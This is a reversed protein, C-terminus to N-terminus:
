SSPLLHNVSIDVKHQQNNKWFVRFHTRVVFRSKRVSIDLLKVASYQHGVAEILDM